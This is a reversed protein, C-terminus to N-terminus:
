GAKLMDPAPDDFQSISFVAVRAGWTRKWFMAQGSHQRVVGRNM